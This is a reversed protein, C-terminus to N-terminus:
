RYAKDLSRSDKNYCMSREIQRHFTRGRIKHSQYETYQNYTLLGKKDTTHHLQSCWTHHHVKQRLRCIYMRRDSGLSHKQFTCCLLQIYLIYLRNSGQHRFICLTCRQERQNCVTNSRPCICQRRLHNESSRDLCIHRDSRDGLSLSSHLCPLRRIHWQSSCSESQSDFRHSYSLRSSFTSLWVAFYLDVAKHDLWTRLFRKTDWM